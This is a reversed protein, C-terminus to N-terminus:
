TPSTMALRYQGESEEYVDDKLAQNIRLALGVRSKGAKTAQEEVRQKIEARTLMQGDALTDAVGNNVETQTVPPKTTRTTKKQKTTGDLASMAARVRKLDQGISTTQKQLEALKTKLKTEEKLLTTTVDELWTAM